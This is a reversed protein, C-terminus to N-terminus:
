LLETDLTLRTFVQKCNRHNDLNVSLCGYVIAVGRFQCLLVPMSLSLSVRPYMNRQMLLAVLVNYV